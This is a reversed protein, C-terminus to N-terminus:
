RHGLVIRLTTALRHQTQGGGERPNVWGVRERIYEPFIMLSRAAREQEEEPLKRVEAIAQDLLKTM